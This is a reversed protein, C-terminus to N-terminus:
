YASSSLLNRKAFAENRIGARLNLCCRDVPEIRMENQLAVDKCDGTVLSKILQRLQQAESRNLFAIWTNTDAAIM